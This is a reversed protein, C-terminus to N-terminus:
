EKRLRVNVKVEYAGGPFTNNGDTIKVPKGIVGQTPFLGGNDTGDIDYFFVRLEQKQGSSSFYSNKFRGKSDTTSYDFSNEVVVKIGKIPKGSADRVTGTVKYCARHPYYNTPTGYAVTPTGYAYVYQGPQVTPETTPLLNDEIPTTSCSGFGLLTMISGGIWFALKKFIDKYSIM